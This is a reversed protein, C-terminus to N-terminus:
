AGEKFGFKALYETLGAKTIAGERKSGEILQGDKILVLTPLSCAFRIWIFM